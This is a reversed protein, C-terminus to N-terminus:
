RDLFGFEEEAILREGVVTSRAVGVAVPLPDAAGVLVLPEEVTSRGPGQAALARGEVQGVEGGVPADVAGNGSARRM